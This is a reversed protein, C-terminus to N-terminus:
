PSCDNCGTEIIDALQLRAAEWDDPDTSWSTPARVWTPDSPDAVGIEWLVKPVMKQVLAAVAKPNVKAAMTVYDVDQIGRRWYKLRLSAIPGPLGYSESPFARDIGPYLLLGDGNSSNWGKMGFVPDFKPPGGFTQATQFVNTLGRGGQYDNYYTAEWFFWRDINKKYQGWALERLAVGDDEIAFSGSAPRQGNYLYFQRGNQARFKDVATQWASTDGVRFWSAAVDLSPVHVYALVLDLTAFSKLKAGVGPNSKMWGAWTETQAYDESEDILYLFRDTSPYNAAFWSEWANTRKWMVESSPTGWWDQWRGYTAISFVNNGVGTGPGRYGHAPTFLEGSLRPEWEPRPQNRNWVSAGSNDDILSIKHRHALLFQRDMVLKTLKDQPSNPNPYAVGTYREAVDHYSTAVMTKASPVDPLTFNRVTLEVPMRYEVVGAARIIVEGKFLGAPADKPIYIDAWVSQNQGPAISFTPVLEMPVAIDPYHRDHDPRDAWGGRYSGDAAKPRQFRSPIHREDYTEYSLASLGRIRLYRVYFLEIDRRTWDFVGAPNPVPESSLSFEGPGTLRNFEVSVAAARRSSGAELILNFAVIENRAGVLRVNRGDWVSNLLTPNSSKSRIEDQAVKDEGTNAWVATLVKDSAPRQEASAAAAAGIEQAHSAAQILGAGAFSTSIAAGLGLALMWHKRKAPVSFRLEGAAPGHFM